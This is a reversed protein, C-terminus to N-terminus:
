TPEPKLSRVASVSCRDLPGVVLLPDLRGKTWDSNGKAGLIEFHVHVYYTETQGATGVRDGQSVSQNAVLWSPAALHAYLTRLSDSHRIVVYNGWGSGNAPRSETVVGDKAAYVDGDDPPPIIDIGLHARWSGDPRKRSHDAFDVYTKPRQTCGAAVPWAYGQHGTALIGPADGDNSCAYLAPILAALALAPRM